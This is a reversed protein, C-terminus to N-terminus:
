FWVPFADVDFMGLPNEEDNENNVDGDEGDEGDKVDEGYEGDKVLGVMSLIAM